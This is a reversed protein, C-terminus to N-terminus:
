AQVEQTKDRPTNLVHAQVMNWRDQGWVALDGARFSPVGWLGLALLERRNAEAIARWGQERLADRAQDWPLGAAEVIRRLGSDSGADLGQAWVGHMFAQVYEPGRGAHEAWPMLSLGRETPRGVPDNLKGFAIGRERAERAADLSIYRRKEAPVALGRMVMPLVYRLRVPVGTHRALAFVRPTVIASYPSRLSFFFDIVPAGDAAQAKALDAEPAFLTREPRSLGDRAAGLAQLRRDLHYLRDVGWYWEGGYHFTGGLYHGLRSRLRDGEAMAHMLRQVEKPDVRPSADQGAHAWLHTGLPVVQELFRGHAIAELLALGTRQVATESPQCRLDTFDLGHWRALRQADVRSYAILLNREPAASDAPPGVLVPKLTFAHRQALALLAQVALHSYPDDVQHFYLVEHQRGRTLRQSEARRRLRELRQQSLLHEAIWPTILTRLSM